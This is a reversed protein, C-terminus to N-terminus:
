PQGFTGMNYFYALTTPIEYCIVERDQYNDTTMTVSWAHPFLDPMAQVRYTFGVDESFDKTSHSEKDKM